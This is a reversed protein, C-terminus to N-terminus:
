KNWAHEQQLLSVETLQLRLTAQKKSYWDIPTKNLFHLIGTVSRGTSLDHMLNADCYHTLQVFRGLPAPIDKPILEKPNEYVSHSWDFDQEPLQSYDPEGVRVRIAADKFQLLYGYFRHLRNLHGLRPMAQFSSMTMVGTTIDLRGISIAWQMAGILSQYIVVDNGELFESTDLEPHDGDAIPSKCNRTSPAKGFLRKYTDLMKEVYRRASICLVGNKDRFFEMGLPYSIPGTGKLKFSYRSMLMDTVTKPNRSAIALDDVYVAIYEYHRDSGSGVARM